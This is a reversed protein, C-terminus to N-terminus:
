ANGALGAQVAIFGQRGIFLNAAMDLMRWGTYPLFATLGSFGIRELPRNGYTIIRKATLGSNELLSKLANKDFSHLHANVPTLRDCHICRTIPINERYPTTIIVVGNNKVTRSAERLATEPTQLHEIVESLVVGDFVDDAFPLRYADGQVFQVDMDRSELRRSARTISDMGADVASVRYGRRTLIESLWGNAAGIDLVSLGVKRPLLQAILEHRRRDASRMFFNMDEPM